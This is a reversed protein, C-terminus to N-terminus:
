YYGIGKGQSKPSVAMKQWNMIMNIM